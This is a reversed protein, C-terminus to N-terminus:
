PRDYVVRVGDLTQNIASATVRVWYANGDLMTHNIGTASVDESGGTGSSDGIDSVLADTSTSLDVRRLDILTIATSNDNLRVHVDKIRSGSPLPIPYWCSPTGASVTVGPTTTGTVNWNTLDDFQADAVSLGLVREGHAGDAALVGASTMSVSETESPLAGPLTLSVSAGLSGPSTLEVYNSIGSAKEYVRLDGASVGAWFDPGTGQLFKYLKDADIYQAEEAGAGYDQTFGGVAAINLSTGSTVKVAASASTRWYLENDSSDVYLATTKAATTAATVPTYDTSGLETASNDNFELAADVNIGASPVKVGNGATHDHSDITDLDTNLDEAWTPGPQADVAPSPTPKTLGMNATTTSAM